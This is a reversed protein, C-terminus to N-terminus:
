KGFWVMVFGFWRAHGKESEIETTQVLCFM